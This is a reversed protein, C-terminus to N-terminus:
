STAFGELKEKDIRGHFLGIENPEASLVHFVRFRGLYKDKLDELPDRFIISNFWRNGYILTVESNKETELVSKAISIVPTIGSGAAVLLYNKRSSPNLAATFNGTPPMVQVTDGKKLGQNAWQSFVGSEVEKVAVRLEGSNVSSCISYSRRLDQGDITARLTLYQGPIFSYLAKLDAPVEFAISVCQSTEKRIDAVRLPHFKLRSM